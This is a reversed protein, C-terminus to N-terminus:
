GHGFRVPPSKAAPSPNKCKVCSPCGEQYKTSTAGYACYQRPSGYDCINPRKPASLCSVCKKADPYAAICPNSPDPALYFGTPCSTPLSCPTCQQCGCGPPGTPPGAITGAPCAIWPFCNCPSCIKCTCAMWVKVFTGTRYYGEPCNEYHPPSCMCAGGVPATDGAAAAAQEQNPGPEGGRAAPDVPVRLSQTLFCTHFFLHGDTGSGGSRGRKVSALNRSLEPWGNCVMCTHCGLLSIKELIGAHVKQYPDPNLPCSMMILPKQGLDHIVM